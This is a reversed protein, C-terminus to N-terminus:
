RWELAVCVNDKIWKTLEYLYKERNNNNLNHSKEVWEEISKQHFKYNTKKGKTWFFHYGFFRLLYVMFLFSLRKNGNQMKHGAIYKYFLNAVFHFISKPEQYSCLNIYTDIESYIDPEIFPGAYEEDSISKVNEYSVKLISKIKNSLSENFELIVDNIVVRENNFYFFNDKNSFIIKSNKHEKLLYDMLHNKDSNCLCIIINKM